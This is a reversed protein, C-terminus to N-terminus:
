LVMRLLGRLHKCCTKLATGEPKILSSSVFCLRWYGKERERKIGQGESCGQGQFSEKSCCSKKGKSKPGGPVLTKELNSSCLGWVSFVVTLYVSFVSEDVAKESKKPPKKGKESKKSAAAAEARKQAALQLKAYPAVIKQAASPTPADFDRPRPSPTTLSDQM